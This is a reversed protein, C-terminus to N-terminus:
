VQSACEVSLSELGLKRVQSIAECIMKLRVPNDILM